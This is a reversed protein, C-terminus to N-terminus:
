LDYDLFVYGPHMTLYWKRWQKQAERLESLTPKDSM